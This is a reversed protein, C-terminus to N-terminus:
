EGSVRTECDLTAGPCMNDKSLCARYIYIYFFLTFVDHYDIFFTLMDVIYLSCVAV